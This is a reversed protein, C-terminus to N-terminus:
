NNGAADGVAASFRGDLAPRPKGSVYRGAVLERFLAKGASNPWVTQEHEAGPAVGKVLAPALGPKGDPLLEALGLEVQVGRRKDLQEAGGMVLEAARVPYLASCCSALVYLIISLVSVLGTSNDYALYPYLTTVSFVSLLIYM